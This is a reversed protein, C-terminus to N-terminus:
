SFRKLNNKQALCPGVIYCAWEHLEVVHLTPPRRRLGALRLNSGKAVMSGGSRMALGKSKDVLYKRSPRRGGFAHKEEVQVAVLYGDAM